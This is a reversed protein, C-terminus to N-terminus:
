DGSVFGLQEYLPRGQESARLRISRCGRTRCLDILRRVVERAIGRRRYPPFTYVGALTATLGTLAVSSRGGRLFAAGTAVIEGAHEAVMWMQAGLAIASKFDATVYARWNPDIEPALLGDEELMAYWADALRPVDEAAGPRLKVDLLMARKM